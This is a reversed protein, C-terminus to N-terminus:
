LEFEGKAGRIRALLRPKSGASVRFDLGVKRATEGAAKAAPSEASFSKLECGRHADQSPHVSDRSWEIFFPLVSAYDDKLAVSKWRLTKGDPRARSGDIQAQLAIGADGAKKMVGAIDETHAAWGILRPEKVSLLLEARERGPGSHPQKPDPAIIELYRLPGLTLLANMTGRGPHVGGFVARIGCREELWAIGHDLDSVGLLLHDLNAPIDPMEGAAFSRRAALTAALALFLRRSIASSM